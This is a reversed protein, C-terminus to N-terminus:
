EGLEQSVWVDASAEVIMRKDEKVDREWERIRERWKEVEVEERGRWM